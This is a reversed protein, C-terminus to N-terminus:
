AKVGGAVVLTGLLALIQEANTGLSFHLEAFQRASAGMTRRLGAQEILARMRSSLAEEDDVPVVYGTTGDTVVRSLGGTDTTIVPLGSAMAEIVANTPAFDARTPLVFIDAERYLKRLADSGASIGAHLHVHPTTSVVPDRSVIDLRCDPFGPRQVIRLLLDGGKRAFAGGVFLVRVPGTRASRDPVTWSTLDIGPAIITVKAPDIRYTDILSQRAVESWPLLAACREYLRRAMERRLANSVALREHHAKTVYWRGTASMMEPTADLSLVIPTTRSVSGLFTLPLMHNALIADIQGRRRLDARYRSRAVLGAKLEWRSSVVPLRAVREPPEYPIWEWTTRWEPHVAFARQLTRFWVEIGGFPASVALLNGGHTGATM